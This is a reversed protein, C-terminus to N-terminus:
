SGWPKQVHRHMYFESNGCEGCILIKERKKMYKILTTVFAAHSWTLPSVSLPANTYPDVQEALVGSILARDAVWELISLANNLETLNKARMIEYDALWTTCVFWPNGPVHEIDNSVRHYFDNTYRVIGGVFTKVWLKEKVADMTSLIISQEPSFTEFVVLGYLSADVTMDLEYGNANRKGMRAFRKEKKDYFHTILADRMKDAIEHYKNGYEDEGFAFAFNSAARLGAIVASVTFTHVGYREEWLDYSNLPLGTEEDRFKVM